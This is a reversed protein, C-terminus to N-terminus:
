EKANMGGLLQWKGEEKMWVHFVRSSYPFLDVGDITCSYFVLAINNFINIRPAGLKYSIAEKGPIKESPFPSFKKGEYGRVYSQKPMPGVSASRWVEADKHWSTLYGKLDGQRFFEWNTEEMKWVEKQDVSLEQGFAQVGGFFLLSIGFLAVILKTSFKM